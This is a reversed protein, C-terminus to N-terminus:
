EAVKPLGTTRSPLAITAKGPVIIQGRQTEGWIDIDVLLANGEEYKRVVKGKLWVTDGLFNIGRYEVAMRRLWADDGMWNTLLHSAWAGRQSGYDYAAPMGIEAAMWNDWHVREIPEPVGTEPNTVAVAPTRRRYELFFRFARIHPSGAGMVWAIIDQTTLPGKVVPTLADGERVDEWYRPTAGRVEEADYDAEIKKMEDPTYKALKTKLYKGRSAGEHREVRMSSFQWTAVTEKRENRFTVQEIQHFMRGAYSSKKEVLDVLHHSTTLKEGLRLPKFWEWTDGSHLGHVGALGRGRRLDWSGWSMSYLYGPPSIMGGWRTKRAYDENFWMTNPDGISRAFHKIGDKTVFENYPDTIPREQGIKARLYALGEETVKGYEQPM